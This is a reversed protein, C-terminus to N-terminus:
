KITRKITTVFPKKGFGNKFMIVCNQEITSNKLHFKNNDSINKCAFGYSTQKFNSNNLNFINNRIVNDGIFSFSSMSFNSNTMNITNNEVRNGKNSTWIPYKKNSSAM